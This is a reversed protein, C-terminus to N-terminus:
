SMPPLPAPSCGDEAVTAPEFSRSPLALLCSPIGMFPMIFAPNIIAQNINQM